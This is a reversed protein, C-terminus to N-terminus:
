QPPLHPRPPDGPRLAPRSDGLNRAAKTGRSGAAKHERDLGRRMRGSDAPLNRVSLRRLGFSAAGFQCAERGCLEADDAGMARALLRSDGRAGREAGLAAGARAAAPFGACSCAYVSEPVAANEGGVRDRCPHRGVARRARRRQDRRM